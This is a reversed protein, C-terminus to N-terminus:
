KGGKFGNLGPQGGLWGGVPPTATYIRAKKTATRSSRAGKKLKSSKWNGMSMYKALIDSARNIVFLSM